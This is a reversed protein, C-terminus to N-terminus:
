LKKNKFRREASWAKFLFYWCCIFAFPCIPFFLGLHFNVALFYSTVTIIWCIGTALISKRYPTAKARLWWTILLILILIPVLDDFIDKPM